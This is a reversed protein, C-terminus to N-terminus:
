VQITACSWVFCRPPPVIVLTANECNVIRCRNLIMHNMRVPRVISKAGMLSKLRMETSCFAPLAQLPLHVGARLALRCTRQLSLAHDLRRQKAIATVALPMPNLRALLLARLM